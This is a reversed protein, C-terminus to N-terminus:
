IFPKNDIWHEIISKVVIPRDHVSGEVLVFTMNGAGDGVQPVYGREFQSTAPWSTEQSNIFSQQYLKLFSLVGPWACNADQAGIYDIANSNDQV